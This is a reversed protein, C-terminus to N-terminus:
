RLMMDVCSPFKSTEMLHQLTPMVKWSVGLLMSIEKPLTAHLIPNKPYLLLLSGGNRCHHIGENNDAATSANVDVDVEVLSGKRGLATSIGDRHLTFQLGGCTVTQHEASSSSEEDYQVEKVDLDDDSMNQNTANGDNSNEMDESMVIPVLELMTDDRWQPIIDVQGISKSTSRLLLTGNQGHQPLLIKQYLKSTATSHKRKANYFRSSVNENRQHGYIVTELCACRHSLLHQPIIYKSRLLLSTGVRPISSTM